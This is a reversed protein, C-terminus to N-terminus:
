DEVKIQLMLQTGAKPAYKETASAPLENWEILQEPTVDYKNAISKLTEGRLTNYFIVKLKPENNKKEKAAEEEKLKIIEPNNFIDKSGDAYKIMFIDSTTLTSLNGSLRDMKKDSVYSIMDNDITIKWAPLEKGSLLYIVNAGKEIKQSECLRRQNNVFFTTGRKDTKIMYVEDRPVVISKAGNRDFFGKNLQFAVEQDNTRILRGVYEDSNWLLLVDDSYVTMAMGMIGMLIIILKKM